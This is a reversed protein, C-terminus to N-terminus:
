PSSPPVSRIMGNSMTGRMMPLLDFSKQDRGAVTGAMLIAGACIGWVPKAAFQARLPKDLGFEDILKLM